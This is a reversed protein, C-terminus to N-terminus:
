AAHREPRPLSLMSRAVAEAQRVATRLYHVIPTHLHSTTGLAWIREPAARGPFRLRLGPAPEPVAGSDAPRADLWLEDDVCSLRPPSYGTACVVAEFRTRTRDPWHATWGTGDPSVAVPAAPALIVTGRDLGALLKRANPLPFASVYRVILRACSSLAARRGATDVTSLLDNTADVLEAVTEQWDIHGAEALTIEQRLREVPDTALSVQARLPRDSVAATARRVLYLVRLPLAPDAPDLRAFASHDLPARGTHHIHTRVAPLQGSRSTMTVRHGHASLLLTADIASLRTGLVLVLSGPRLGALLRGEPYAAPVLGPRGTHRRVIAPLTPPGTGVCLLVDDAPLETGDALCVRYASAGRAIRVARGPLYRHGIGSRMALEAHRRYADACYGAVLGRPVIDTRRAPLGRRRLYRLFDDPQRELLSMVGVSTNCLLAPSDTGFVEGRGPPGPDVLDVSTAARHRVMALFAATGTAGGGVIVVRRRM